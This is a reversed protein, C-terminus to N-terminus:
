ESGRARGHKVPQVATEFLALYEAGTLRHRPGDDSVHASPRSAGGRSARVPEGHRDEIAQPRARARSSGAAGEDEAPKRSDKNSYSVNQMSDQSPPVNDQAPTISDVNLNSVDEVLDPSLPVKEEAPTLIGTQITYM